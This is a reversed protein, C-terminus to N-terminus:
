PRARLDYVRFSDGVRGTPQRRELWDYSGDSPRWEYLISLSIVVLCGQARAEEASKPIPHATIGFQSAPAVTFAALCVNGAAGNRELYPQLRKMDQGWDLNSDVVYKWGQSRGGSPLNFFALYRPFAAASEVVVLAVSVVAAKRFFAPLDPPRFTFLIAAIWIFVFPYVPLIHRIGINIHSTTALTFYALPPITLAYWEQRARLLRFVAERPGARIAILFAAAVALLLLALVGAPTKVGFVVPFYYWWGGGSTQGLLYSTHGHANHLSVYLFGRVFSPAPIPLRLAATDLVRALGPHHLLIAGLSATAPNQVLIASLPTGGFEAPLLPRTEFGYSVYLAVFAGGLVAAMSKVFHGFSCRWRPAQLAAAQQLGHVLYWCVYLVPLLLASYKVALALGTVLGCWLAYRMSGRTLFANWSLCGALFAFAAPVDTTALHGHAIFSPDFAFLLLAVLAPLAGFHRRTWWAIFGGFLLTLVVKVSRGAALITEAPVVNHYLFDADGGWKAQSGASSADAPQLRLHLLLLPLASLAQALPPHETAAPLEGTRLFTYGCSLHFAEDVTDSDLFVGAFMAAGMAVLLVAVCALFHREAFPAGAPAGPPAAPTQSSSSLRDTM